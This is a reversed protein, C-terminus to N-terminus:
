LGFGAFNGSFGWVWTRPNLYGTTSHQASSSKIRVENSNALCVLPLIALYPVYGIIALVSVALVGILHVVATLLISAPRGLDLCIRARVYFISNIVRLNLIM